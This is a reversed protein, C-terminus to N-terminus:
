RAWPRSFLGSHVPCPGARGRSPDDYEEVPYRRLIEASEVVHVGPMASLAAILRKETASITEALSANDAGAISPPCLCVLFPTGTRSTAGTLGDSSLPFTRYTSNCRRRRRPPLDRLWDEVRLLVVNMGQTNASILSSPDLLQQFVQNYDGCRSVAPLELKGDLFRAFRRSAECTFTGAIAITQSPKRTQAALIATSPQRWTSSRFPRLHARSWGKSSPVSPNSCCSSTRAQFLGYRIRLAANVRLGNGGCHVAPGFARHRDEGDADNRHARRLTFVNHPYNQLLFGVNYLPNQNLKRDPNVVEVIKDFPCEQHAYSELVTTKVQDLLSLGTENGAVRTRVPLFNMFCGILNEVERSTRGAVVTGIVLDLKSAGATCRSSWHRVLADHLADGLQRPQDDYAAQM